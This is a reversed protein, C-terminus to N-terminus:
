TFVPVMGLCSCSCTYSCVCVCALTGIYVCVFVSVYFLWSVCKQACADVCVCACVSGVTFSDYAWSQRLASGLLGRKKPGMQWEGGIERRRVKRRRRGGKEKYYRKVKRVNRKRNRGEGMKEGSDDRKKGEKSQLSFLFLFSFDLGGSSLSMLPSFPPLPLSLSNWLKHWVSLNLVVTPFLVGFDSVGSMLRGSARTCVRQSYQAQSSRAAYHGRTSHDKQNQQPTNQM